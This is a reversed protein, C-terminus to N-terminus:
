HVAEGAEAWPCENLALVAGGWDGCRLTTLSAPSIEIQHVERFPRGLYRCLGAKIVDSHSVLGVAGGPFTERLQDLLSLLRRAVGDMTEGAPTSAADRNDNWRVWEPDQALAEFTEGSWRGFDIEDLSASVRARMATERALFAATERARLRPSSFLADLGACAIRRALAGAQLRGTQSLHVGAMRGTLVKGVHGHDAHRMLHFVTSM